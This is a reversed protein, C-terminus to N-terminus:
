SNLPNSTSLAARKLGNLRRTLIEIKLRSENLEEELIFTLCNSIILQNLLEIASSYAISYFHSQEKKSVRSSGEAINSAVSISARRMQSVIGFKEESPFKTTVKYIHICLDKALQWVELKEFSYVYM